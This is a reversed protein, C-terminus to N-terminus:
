VCVCLSKSLALRLERASENISFLRRLKAVVVLFLKAPGNAAKARPACVCHLQSLSFNALTSNMELRGRLTKAFVSSRTSTLHTILRSRFEGSGACDDELWGSPSRILTTSAVVVVVAILLADQNFVLAPKM